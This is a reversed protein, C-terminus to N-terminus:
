VSPEYRADRRALASPAVVDEGALALRFLALDQELYDPLRHILPKEYFTFAGATRVSPEEEEAPRGTLAAVMTTPCSSVITPIHPVADEIGLWLDLLLVDPPAEQVDERWRDLDAARVQYRGCAGLVTALLMRFNPDDEVTVIQTPRLDM